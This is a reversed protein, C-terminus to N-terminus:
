LTNLAPANVLALLLGVALFPLVQGAVDGGRGVLSGVVWFRYADLTSQDTLVLASTLATLFASVAAGALALTVPTGGGDGLTGLGFVVVSAVLAGALAFWVSGTLSSIGFAYVAVCVAFAAGASVGLLGPDALPNRTHGQILAGAVGLAAGAVVGLLTRPLRLSRVVADDEGGTPSVLAAWVDPLAISRAGVAIGLLVVVALLAVLALLGTALRGRATTTDPV